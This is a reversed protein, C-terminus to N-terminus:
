KDLVSKLKPRNRLATKSIPKEKKEVLVTKPEYPCLDRIICDYCEPVRAKCTYRGHLLLWHHAKRKYKDPIINHLDHEVADPGKGCSLDLRHAVRFIHTDVAITPEGFAENMVVNATKNGVGALKTLATHDRPIEGDHEDILKQAMAMVNKAKGRYLGITSIYTILKEEGLKLMKQPTDAIKFLAETAKNVSIDTAQASLAVAVLLTYPNTYNLETKPDPRQKKLRQFIEEVRDAALVKFIKRTPDTTKAMFPNDWFGHRSDM